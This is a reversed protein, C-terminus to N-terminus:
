GEERILEESDSPNDRRIQYSLTSRWDCAFVCL